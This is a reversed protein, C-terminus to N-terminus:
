LTYALFTIRYRALFLLSDVVTEPEATLPFRVYCGFIQCDSLKKKHEREDPLFQIRGRLPHKYKFEGSLL